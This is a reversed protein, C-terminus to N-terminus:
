NKVDMSLYVFLTKKYKSLSMIEVEFYNVEHYKM